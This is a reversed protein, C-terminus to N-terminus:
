SWPLNISTAVSSSYREIIASFAYIRNLSLNAITLNGNISNLDVASLMLGHTLFIGEELIGPNFNLPTTWRASWACNTNKLVSASKENNVRYNNIVTKTYRPNLDLPQNANNQSQIQKAIQENLNQFPNEM